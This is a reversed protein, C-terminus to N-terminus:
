KEVVRLIDQSHTLETDAGEDEAVQVWQGDEMNEQVTVQRGDVLELRTGPTLDFVNIM